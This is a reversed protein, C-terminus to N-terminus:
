KGEIDSRGDIDFRGDIDLRRGLNSVKWRPKLVRSGLRV